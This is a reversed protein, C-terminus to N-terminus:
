LHSGSAAYGLKGLAAQMRALGPNQCGFDEALAPLHYYFPDPTEQQAADLLGQLAPSCDLAAAQQPLLPLAAPDHLPGLWLPGVMRYPSDAYDIILIPLCWFVVSACSCCVLM